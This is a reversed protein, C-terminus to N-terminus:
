NLNAAQAETIFVSGGSEVSNIELQPGTLSHSQKTRVPAALRGEDQMQVSQERALSRNANAAQGHIWLRNWLEATLHANDKLIRVTL